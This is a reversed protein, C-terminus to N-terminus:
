LIHPDIGGSGWYAKMAHHKTLRLSLKVKVRFRSEVLKCVSLAESGCTLISRAFARYTRTRKHMGVSKPKFVQSIGM